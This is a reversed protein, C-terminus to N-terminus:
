KTKSTHISIIVKVIRDPLTRSLLESQEEFVCYAIRYSSLSLILFVAMAIIIRNLNSPNEGM